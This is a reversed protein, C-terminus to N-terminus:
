VDDPDDVRLRIRAVALSLLAANYRSVLGESIEDHMEAYKLTLSNVGFATQVFWPAPMTSVFVVYKFWVWCFHGIAAFVYM